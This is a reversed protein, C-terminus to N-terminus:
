PTANVGLAPIEKVPAEGQLWPALGIIKECPTGAANAAPPEYASDITSKMALFIM